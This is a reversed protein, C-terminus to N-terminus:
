PGQSGDARLMRRIVGGGLVRDPEALSFFVASQGPTVARVPEQFELDGELTEEHRWLRLVAEQEPHRYRIRARVRHVGEAPLPGLWNVGSVGVRQECLEEAGGVVVRAESPRIELVYLPKGAALGLGRRQGVTYPFVGKHHGLVHGERDTIDGPSSGPLAPLRLGLWDAERRIFEGPGEGKPVFCVEQSDPKGWNPLGAERAMERVQSKMLSGLPFRVARLQEVTLGHLFYTQDRDLDLAKRLVPLGTEPDEEIRAYHGTAVAECGLSRARELLSAFKLDTNCSVCPIPTAGALYSEAFPRVVKEKFEDEMNLIYHPIGIIDAARRATGLDDLTCCRGELSGTGDRDHNWLHMSVGVVEAGERAMLLAAVSSDVGGSM